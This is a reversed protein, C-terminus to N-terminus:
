EVRVGAREMGRRPDSAVVPVMSCTKLGKKKAFWNKHIHSYLIGRPASAQVLNIKVAGLIM